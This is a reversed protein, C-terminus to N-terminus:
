YDNDYQDHFGPCKRSKGGISYVDALDELNFSAHRLEKVVHEMKGNIDAVLHSIYEVDRKWKGKDKQVKTM